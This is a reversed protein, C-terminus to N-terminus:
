SVLPVTFRKILDHLVILLLLIMM